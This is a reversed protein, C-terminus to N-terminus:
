IGGDAVDISSVVLGFDTCQDGCKTDSGGSARVGDVILSLVVHVSRGPRGRDLERGVSIDGVSGEFDAELALVGGETSGDTDSVSAGSALVSSAHVADVDVFDGGVADLRGGSEFEGISRAAGFGNPDVKVDGVHGPQVEASFRTAVRGTVKDSPTLGLEAGLAFRVASALALATVAVRGFGDARAVGFAHPICLGVNATLVAPVEFLGRTKAVGHALVVRL